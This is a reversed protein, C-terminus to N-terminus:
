GGIDVPYECVVKISLRTGSSLFTLNNKGKHLSFWNFDKICNYLNRGESSKIIGKENDIEIIEGDSISLNDMEFVTEGTDDDTVILEMGYFKGNHTYGSYGEDCSIILKPYYPKRLTSKNDIVLKGDSEEEDDDPFLTALPATEALEYTQPLMYAYPSDCTITATFAFPLWGVEIPTLETVVCRYRVNEMDPQEIELWRYDTPELLWRAIADMEFRDLYDDMNLNCPEVGFVLEFELPSSLDRGYLYNRGTSPIADSVIKGSSAFSVAKNDNGDIDYIRLGFRECPIGDFSFHKAIFGM